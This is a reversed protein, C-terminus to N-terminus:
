EVNHWERERWSANGIEVQADDPTRRGPGDRDLRPRLALALQVDDGGGRRRIVRVLRARGGADVPGVVGGGERVAGALRQDSVAAVRPEEQGGVVGEAMREFALGAFGDDGTAALDEAGDPM